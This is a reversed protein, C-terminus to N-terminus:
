ESSKKIGERPLPAAPQATAPLPKYAKTVVLCRASVGGQVRGLSPIACDGHRKFRGTV